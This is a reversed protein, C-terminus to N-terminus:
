RYPLPQYQEKRAGEGALFEARENGELGIYGPVHIIQTSSRDRLLKDIERLKTSWDKNSGSCLASVLSLSDTLIRLPVESPLKGEAMRLGELM